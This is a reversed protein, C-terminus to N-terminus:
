PSNIIAECRAESIPNADTFHRISSLGCILEITPTAIEKERESCHINRPYNMLKKPCVNAVQFYGGGCRGVFCRSFDDLIQVEPRFHSLYRCPEKGVAVGGGVSM